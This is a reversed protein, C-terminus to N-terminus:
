SGIGMAMGRGGSGGGNWGRKTGIWTVYGKLKGEM